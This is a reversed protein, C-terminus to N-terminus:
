NLKIKGLNQKLYIKSQELARHRRIRDYAWFKFRPHRVYPYYFEDTATHKTAYKLLHKFGDTESVETKRVINTPDAKGLPFLSPFTMSCLGQYDFENIPKTDATPWNCTIFQQIRNVEFPADIDSDVTTQIFDDNENSEQIIEPGTEIIVKDITEIASDSVENLDTPIGNIPLTELTQYDISIGKDQWYKNNTCLYELLEHVRVRNVIFEKSENNQDIKKVILIPIESTKRPLSKLISSLDQSFNAVYGRSLLQGGPLRFISMVALIPSILMEEIMTLNEFHKKIKLPIEDFSPMMTNEATYKNKNKRCTQCILLNTPWLECCEIFYFQKMESMKKHFKEMEPGVWDQENLDGNVRSNFETLYKNKRNIIAQYETIKRNNNNKTNKNLEELRQNEILALEIDMNRRTLMQSNNKQTKDRNKKRIESRIKESNIQSPTM